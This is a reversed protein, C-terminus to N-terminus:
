LIELLRQKLESDESNYVIDKINALKVTLPQKRKMYDVWEIFADIFLRTNYSSAWGAFGIFGDPNFSIAERQSYNDCIVKIYASMSKTKTPKNWICNGIEFIYDRTGTEVEQSLEYRNREDIHKKLIEILWRWDAKTVDDYTLPKFYERAEDNSITRRFSLEQEM